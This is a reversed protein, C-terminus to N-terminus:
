NKETKEKLENTVWRGALDVLLFQRNTKELFAKGDAEKLMAITTCAGALLATSALVTAAAWHNVPYGTKPNLIHSYRRGGIEMYKEYDGSTALAGEVLPLSALVKGPERPNQVGVPWPQGDPQPGLARIDGALNVYGHKIGLEMMIEAARDCAYEKGFGGFDIEMGSITLLLDAGRRAVKEWGVLPLLAAVAEPEPLKSGKFNWAKRLVGSTVDFLGGSSAYLHEAAVLLDCTERDCATYVGTGAAANIRSIVSDPRYRSYKQEIRKVESIAASFAKEVQAADGACAVLEHTCGM